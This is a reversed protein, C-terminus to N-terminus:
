RTKTSKQKMEEISKFLKKFKEKSSSSKEKIAKELKEIQDILPKIEKDTKVYGLVKALKIERKAEELLKLAKEPDKQYSKSAQDILFSAIAISRPIITTDIEILGLAVQLQNIASKVKGEQLFRDALEISEKYLKVPLYATDIVIEDRLTNLIIRATVLDNKNVAEKAQEVLKKAKEIDTIGTIETVVADVPLRELKYNKELQNIKAKLTELEKKAEETKGHNLLFLVKNGRAVVDVAEKIIKELEAERIQQASSKGAHKIVEEATEEKQQIQQTQQKAKVSATEQKALVPVSLLASAVLASVLKKM